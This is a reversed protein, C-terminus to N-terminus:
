EIVTNSTSDLQYAGTTDRSGSRLFYKETLTVQGDIAIYAESIQFLGDIFIANAERGSFVDQIHAAIVPLGALATEVSHYIYTQGASVMTDDVEDGYYLLALRATRAAGDVDKVKLVYGSNLTLTSGAYVSRKTSDDILVAHLRNSELTSIKQYNSIFSNTTYGAFYKKSSYMITQYKGWPVYAHPTEVMSQDVLVIDQGASNFVANSDTDDLSAEATEVAILKVDPIPRLLTINHTIQLATVTLAASYDQFNKKTCKMTVIGPPCELDFIGAYYVAFIYISGSTRFVFPADIQSGEIDKVTGKVMGEIAFDVVKIESPEISIRSTATKFGSKSATIDTLPTIPPLGTLTYYGGANTVATKVGYGMFTLDMTITVGEVHIGDRRKVHGFVAQTCERFVTMYVTRVTYGWQDMLKAKWQADYNEAGTISYYLFGAASGVNGEGRLIGAGDYVQVKMNNPPPGAKFVPDIGQWSIKIKKDTCRMSTDYSLVGQTGVSTTAHALENGDADELVALWQGFKLAGQLSYKVTPPSSTYSDRQDTKVLNNSADYLKVKCNPVFVSDYSIDMVEEPYYRSKSFSIVATTLLRDMLAETVKYCGSSVDIGRHDVIPTRVKYGEKILMHTISLPHADDWQVANGGGSEKTALTDYGDYYTAKVGDLLNGTASDKFILKHTHHHHLRIIIPVNRDYVIGSQCYSQGNCAEVKVSARNLGGYLVFEWYDWSFLPFPNDLVGTIGFVGGSDTTSSPYEHSYKIDGDSHKYYMTVTVKANFLPTNDEDPFIVTGSLDYPVDITINDIWIITWGHDYMHCWEESLKVGFELELSGSEPLTFVITGSQNIGRGGPVGLNYDVGNVRAIGYPSESWNDAYSQYDFRLETGKIFTGIRKVARTNACRYVACKMRGSDNVTSGPTYGPRATNTIAWGTLGGDDFNETYAISM